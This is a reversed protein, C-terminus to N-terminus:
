IQSLSFRAIGNSWQAETWVWRAGDFYIMKKATLRDFDYMGFRCEMVLSTSKGLVSQLSENKPLTVQELYTVGGASLTYGDFDGRVFLVFQAYDWVRSGESMPITLLSKALEINENDLTYVMAVRDAQALQEDSAFDITNRQAYDSFARTLELWKIVQLGDLLTDGEVSDKFVVQGGEVSLLRGSLTALVKLLEVVTMEPLNDKLRINAGNSQESRGSVVCSVSIPTPDIQWGDTLVGGSSQEYVYDYLYVICFTQGLPIDVSRGALPSGTVVLTGGSKTFSYGGLFNWGGSENPTGLFVTDSTENPFSLLLDQEARLCRVYGAYGINNRLQILPKYREDVVSFIGGINVSINNMLVPDQSGIVPYSLFTRDITIQTEAIGKNEGSIIRYQSLDVGLTSIDVAAGSNAIVMDVIDNLNASLKIDGDTMYRVRGWRIESSREANWISSTNREFITDDIFQSIDGLDRLRQLFLLDGTVFICEFESGNFSGVYLYGDRTVTGSQMQAEVKRRMMEGRRHFDNAFGLALLNNPTKPVAFTTTREVELEDFAFLPNKKVFQLKFNAPLDLVRGGVNFSTM